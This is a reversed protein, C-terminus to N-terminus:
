PSESPKQEAYSSRYYRPHLEFPDDRQGRQYARWGLQGLTSAQPFWCSQEARPQGELLPAPLRELVPGTLVTQRALEALLRDRDVIHCSDRMQWAGSAARQYRAAFLQRRQANMLPCADTVARPLQEVLVDLTDIAVLEAGVAYAFTKAATVAIRLGTFSGPGHTVAVLEVDSPTWGAQALLKATVPALCQTTRQQQPLEAEERVEAQELLAVSGRQTSTEIALIRV